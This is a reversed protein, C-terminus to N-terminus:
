LSSYISDSNSHLGDSPDAEARSRGRLIRVRNHDIHPPKELDFHVETKAYGRQPKFTSSRSLDTAGLQRRHPLTKSDSESYIAGHLERPHKETDFAQLEFLINSLESSLNSVRDPDIGFSTRASNTGSGLYSDINKMESQNQQLSMEYHPPAAPFYVPLGKQDTSSIHTEISVISSAKSNSRKLAKHSGDISAEDWIQHKKRPLSNHRSSPVSNTRSTTVHGFTPLSAGDVQDDEEYIIEPPDGNAQKSLLPKTEPSSGGGPSGYMGPYPADLDGADSSTQTRLQPPSPKSPDGSYRKSSRKVLYKQDNTDTGMENTNSPSYTVIEQTSYSIRKKSNQRSNFNGDTRDLFCHYLVLYIGEFAIVGGLIHHFLPDTNFHLFASAAALVLVHIIILGGSCVLARRTHSIVNSSLLDKNRHMTCSIVYYLIVTVIIYLLCPAGILVGVLYFSVHLLCRSQLRFKDLYVLVGTAALIGIPIGWGIFYFLTLHGQKKDIVTRTILYLHIAEAFLWGFFAVGFLQLVGILSFCFYSSLSLPVWKMASIFVGGAFIVVGIVIILTLNCLICRRDSRSYSPCCIHSMCVIFALFVCVAAGIAASLSFTLYVVKVVTKQPVIVAFNTLHNCECTIQSSTTSNLAQCGKTSWEGGNPKTFDWYSCLRQEPLIMEPLTFKLQVPKVLSTSDGSSFSLSTVKTLIKPDDVDKMQPQPLLKHLTKYVIVVGVSGKFLPYNESPVHISYGNKSDSIEMPENKMMSRVPEIRIDVNNYSIVLKEQRYNVETLVKANKVIYEELYKMVLITGNMDEDVLNWVDMMDENLIDDVISVFIKTSNIKVQGLGTVDIAVNLALIVNKIANVKWSQFTLSSINKSFDKIRLLYTEEDVLSQNYEQMLIKLWIYNLPPPTTSVTTKLTPAETRGGPPSFECKSKIMVYGEDCVCKYSGITNVCQANYDCVDPENDTPEGSSAESDNSTNCEDIDRCHPVVGIWSGNSSCQLMSSGNILFGPLCQIKAFEDEIYIYKEQAVSHGVVNLECTAKVSLTYVERAKGAANTAECAYRGQDQKRIKSFALRGSVSVSIEHDLEFTDKKLKYWKTDPTPDGATTCIVECSQGVLMDNKSQSLTLQPMIHVILNASADVIKGPSESICAYKGEDKNQVNEIILSNSEFKYRADALMEKYSKAASQLGKFMWYVRPKPVGDSICQFTATEGRLLTQSKPKKSFSQTVYVDINASRNRKLGPSNSVCTYVGSETLTVGTIQLSGDQLISYKKSNMADVPQFISRSASKFEWSIMPEPVGVSVCKLTHNLGYILRQDKPMLVFEQTVYVTLPAKVNRILGPSYSYCLVDGKDDITVNKVLLSGNNMIEYKYQMSEDISLIDNYKNLRVSWGVRPKPDGELICSFIANNGYLVHAATPVTTFNQTVYVTLMASVNRKLGPSTSYCVYTTQDNYDVNYIVLTGNPFIKYKKEDSYSIPKYELTLNDHLHWTIKPKPIGKSVCSFTAKKGYVVSQDSPKTHFWQIPNVVVEYEKAASGESNWANCTYIGRDSWTINPFSLISHDNKTALGFTITQESNGIKKTWRYVAYPDAHAKCAASVPKFLDTQIFSKKKEFYPPFASVGDRSMQLITFGGKLCFKWKTYLQGTSEDETLSACYGNLDKILFSEGAPHRVKQFMLNPSTCTKNLVFASQSNVNLCLGTKTHILRRHYYIFMFDSGTCTSKKMLHYEEKKTAFDATLCKNEPSKKIIHSTIDNDCGYLEIRMCIKHELISDDNWSLPHVKVYRARFRPQFWHTVVTNSDQNGALTKKKGLEHYGHYSVGTISYKIKYSVVWDKNEKHGQTSIGSLTMTKGLDVRLYQSLDQTSACWGSYSLSNLRAHSPIFYKGAHSSASISSNPVHNSQMGLPLTCAPFPQKSKDILDLELTQHTKCLSCTLCMDEKIIQKSAKLQFHTGRLDVRSMGGICNSTGCISPQGYSVYKHSAFTTDTAIVKLSNLEVRVRHFYSTTNEKPFNALTKKLAADSHYNCKDDMIITVFNNHMGSPLTLYEKPKESEMEYCFISTDTESNDRGYVRVTYEGDTVTNTLKKISLCDVSLDELTLDSILKGRLPRPSFCKGDFSSLRKTYKVLWWLTWDCFLKNRSLDLKKLTKIKEFVSESIGAIDNGSLDLTQLSDLGTFAEDNISSISNGNLLLESTLIPLNKPITTFGLNSCDVRYVYGGGNKLQLWESQCDSIDLGASYPQFFLLATAFLLMHRNRAGGM